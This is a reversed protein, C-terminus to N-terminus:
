FTKGKREPWTGSFGRCLYVTFGLGPSGDHMTRVNMAPDVSSFMERVREPLGENQEKRVFVADYGQMEPSPPWFDYQNMKRGTDVCFAREQGPVYFSLEATVGYTDSFVFVKEPDRFEDQRLQGVTRGLDAWGKLRSTPNLKGTLPIIFQLHILIFVVVGAVPWVKRYRAWRSESEEWFRVFAFAALVIGAGYSVASWNAEVKTHLSWLLFFGWVPWFFVSLFRSQRADLGISGGRGSLAKWAGLVVFVLWWPTLVGFQSGLYEPFKDLKFLVRAKDGAMGGRYLVHKVGVWDHTANWILVPLLGVGAGAGLAALLRSWYREPYVAVPRMLCSAILALPVFLLMTYKAAVGLALFIGLSIFPLRGADEDGARYLSFMAGLWCVMLPNDTTMLVGGAIYLLTTNAIVLAWLAVRPQRFIHGIGFFLFIQMLAAGIVAGFRVGYETAGFIWTCVRNIVAILPGKSYYSFQLTRSWDWYQAEDPALNIQGSGIFWLRVATTGAIVALAMLWYKLPSATTTEHM